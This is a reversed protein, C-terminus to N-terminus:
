ILKRIKESETFETESVPLIFVSLKLYGLRYLNWM